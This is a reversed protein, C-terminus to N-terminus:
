RSMWRKKLAKPMHKDLRVSQESIGGIKSLERKNFDLFNAINQYDTTGHNAWFRLPDTRRVDDFLSQHNRSM